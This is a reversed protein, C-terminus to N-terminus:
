KKRLVVTLNNAPMRVTEAHELGLETARAIVDDLNRVGWATNQARLMADFRENSEATHRGGEQFPGYLVLAGGSPLRTAAAALLADLVEPPAIHIVNICVIADVTALPWDASTVDLHRAPRVNSLAAESVWADISPLLEVDVETPQWALHPLRAGFFAAHQGTGSGIELVTSASALVRELVTAIADRNRETAPAHRRVATPTVPQFLRSSM